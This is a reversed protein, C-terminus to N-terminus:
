HTTAVDLEEDVACFELEMLENISDIRGETAGHVKEDISGKVMIYHAIIRKDPENNPNWRRVRSLAQVRSAPTWHEEVFVVENAHSLDVGESLAAITAVVHKGGKALAPRLEQHVDGDIYVAHKDGGLKNYLTRATDRYWTFFVGPGDLDEALSVAADFKAECATVRRLAQMAALYNSYTKEQNRWYTAIERYTALEEDNLTVFEFKNGLKPLELQVEAYTRGMGFQTMLQKLKDKFRVGGIQTGYGNREVWLYTNIFQYYSSVINPYLIHYQMYLDDADKAIPTATLEFVYPIDNALELAGLSQKAERNRFHHSEDLILVYYNETLFPYKRLSEKNVVLWDHKSLIARMRDRPQSRPPLAVVKDDPYQETLFDQWQLVLYGPAVVLVRNRQAESLPRSAIAIRAAETAQFTKGLGPNDNLMARKKKLLFDIGVYQYHRVQDPTIM